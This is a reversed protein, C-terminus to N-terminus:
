TWHTLWTAFVLWAHTNGLLIRLPHSIIILAGALVTARHPRGRTVLDYILCPIILLDALGFFAAPGYQQIFAFPLRAIAAPLIGITALLMLRKHIDLRRRFYFAASVLIAFVLMDALPITLFILPSSFGPPAQVAKARVIATLTGIVVMAAALVAGAIGLLMHTRTRRTAVLTTQTIFLALWSSFILGHVVLLAPLPETQFYPRLYFTRSFGAFVIIVFSAAMGTFFIRERRKNVFTPNLAM